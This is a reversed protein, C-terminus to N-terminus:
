FYLDLKNRNLNSIGTLKAVNSIGKWVFGCKIAVCQISELGPSAQMVMMDSPTRARSLYCDMLLWDIQSLLTLCGQHWKACCIASHLLRSHVQWTDNEWSLTLMARYIILKRRNHRSLTFSVNVSHAFPYHSQSSVKWCVSLTTFFRRLATCVCKCVSMCVTRHCCQWRGSVKYIEQVIFKYICKM